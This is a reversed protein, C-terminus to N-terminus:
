RVLWALSLRDAYNPPSHIIFGVSLFSVLISPWIAWSVFFGFHSLTRIPNLIMGVLIWIIMAMVACPKGKMIQVLPQASGLSTTGVNVIMHIFVLWTVFRRFYRGAVRETIDRYSKVPYRSSDLKVYLWWLLAGFYYVMGGMFVYLLVVPVYGNQRFAYPANFPVLIDTTCLYFALIWSAQRLTRWTEVKEIQRPALGIIQLDDSHSVISEVNFKAM